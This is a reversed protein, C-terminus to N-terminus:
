NNPAKKLVDLINKNLIKIYTGKVGLSKVVIIGASELKNLANNIISRTIYLNYAIESAIIIGEDNNIIKFIEKCVMVETYSLSNFAINASAIEYSNVKIEEIEKRALELSIIAFAHECIIQDEDSFPQEYKILLIAGIKEYSYFIPVISTYRNGYICSDVGPCTCKPESDYINSIPSTLTQTIDMYEQPMSNSTLFDKNYECYYNKHMSYCGINGSNDYLYVNALVLKSLQECINKLFDENLHFNGLLYNISKIKNLLGIAM